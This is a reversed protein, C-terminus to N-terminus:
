PNTYTAQPATTGLYTSVDAAQSTLPITIFSWGVDRQVTVTVTQGWPIPANGAGDPTSVSVAVGHNANEWTAVMRACDTTYGGEQAMCSSVTHALQDVGYWAAM